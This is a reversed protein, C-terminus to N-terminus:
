LRGMSREAAATALRDDFTAVARAGHRVATDLVVVDPLRLRTDVRLAAWRLPADVDAEVIEFAARLDRAAADIVGFTAPGVLCEAFTLSPLVVRETGISDHIAIARDHHAARADRLAVIWSADAVIM